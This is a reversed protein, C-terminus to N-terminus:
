EVQNGQSAPAEPLAPLVEEDGSAGDHNEQEQDLFLEPKQV